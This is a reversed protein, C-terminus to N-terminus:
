ATCVGELFDLARDTLMRERLAGRLREPDTQEAPAQGQQVLQGIVENFAAELEEPSVTISKQKAVARLVLLIRVQREAEPKWDRRMDDETKKLRALYMSLEIGRHQLDHQFRHIMDDLEERVMEDPAPVTARDIIADLIALRIRQQEKARRDDAITNRLHMRLQALDTFEGVSTAFADDLTPKLVAQVKRMTVSFDLKKGAIEKAHYEKPAVLSFQKTQGVALGVLEDEFGPMFSEGGIVLPHNRNSGGEILVGNHLADFDVEVRDGATAAETKDLFTARMNCITDLAAEVDADTIEVPKRQIKITELDPLTISPWISVQVSYQLGDSDNKEIHLDSTKLVDWGQQQTAERFSGELALELAEARIADASVKQEALNHPAKGKRFGDVTVNKAIEERAIKIYRDLEGRDLAISAVLACEGSTKISVHM